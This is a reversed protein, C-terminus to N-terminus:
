GGFPFSDYISEALTYIDDYDYERGIKPTWYRGDVRLMRKM